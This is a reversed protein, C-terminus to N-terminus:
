STDTGSRISPLAIAFALGFPVALAVFVWEPKWGAWGPELDPEHGPTDM